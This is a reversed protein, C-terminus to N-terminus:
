SFLSAGAGQAQSTSNAAYEKKPGVTGGPVSGPVSGTGLPVMQVDVPQTPGKNAALPDPSAKFSPSTNPAGLQGASKTAPTSLPTVGLAEDIAQSSMTIPQGHPGMLRVTGPTPGAQSTPLAKRLQKLFQRTERQELHRAVPALLRRSLAPIDVLAPWAADKELGLEILALHAGQAYFPNM